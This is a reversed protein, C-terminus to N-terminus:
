HSAMKSPEAWFQAVCSTGHVFTVERLPLWLRRPGYLRGMYPRYGSTPRRLGRTARARLTLGAYLSNGFLSSCLVCPSRKMTVLQERAIPSYCSVLWLRTRTACWAAHALLAGRLAAASCVRLRRRSASETSTPMASVSIEHTRPRDRASSVQCLAEWHMSGNPLVGVSDGIYTGSSQRAM